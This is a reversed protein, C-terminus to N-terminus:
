FGVKSEQRCIGAQAPFDGAAQLMDAAKAPLNRRCGPNPRQESLQFLCFAALTNRSKQKISQGHWIPNQM